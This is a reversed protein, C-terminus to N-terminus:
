PRGSSMPVDVGRLYRCENVYGHFVYGQVQHDGEDIHLEWELDLMPGDEWM